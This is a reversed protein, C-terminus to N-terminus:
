LNALTDRGLNRNSDDPDFDSEGILFVPTRSATSTLTLPAPPDAKASAIDEAWKIAANYLNQVPESVLHTRAMLRYVAIDLTYSRLLIALDADVSTDIPVLVRRTLYSNLEGESAVLVEELIDEDPEGSSEDGTLHALDALAAFRNKLQTSTAYNPM